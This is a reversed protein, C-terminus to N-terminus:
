WAVETWKRFTARDEVISLLYQALDARGISFPHHLPKEISSRYKGKGPSDRLYPVGVLTWNLDTQNILMAMKTMDRYAFELRPKVFLRFLISVPLSLDPNTDIAVSAVVVVLRRQGSAQMSRAINLVGESYISTEKSPGSSGLTSVVADAGGVAEAVSKSDFVDGKVLRVKPFREKLVEPRRVLATIEYGETSAREILRLGTGRTGGFISLKM